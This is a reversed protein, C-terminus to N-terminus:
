NKILLFLNKWLLASSGPMPPMCIAEKLLEIVRMAQQYAVDDTDAVAKKSVKIWHVLLQDLLEVSEREHINAQELEKLFAAPQMPSCSSFIAFLNKHAPASSEAQLTQMVCRSKITPLLEQPRHTLLLFHYGRPPEEISKLLSNACTPTLADAQQMVFFHHQDEELSFAMTSTIPKLADLTYQKEPALWTVAHHQQQAIARCSACTYCGKNKCLQQQLYDITKSVLEQHPGVWLQAPPINM